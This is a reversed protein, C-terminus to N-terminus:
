WEALDRATQYSFFVRHTEIEMRDGYAEVVKKQILFTRYKDGNIYVTGNSGATIKFAADDETMNVHLLIADRASKPRAAVEAHEVSALVAVGPTHAVKRSPHLIALVGGAREAQEALRDFYAVARRPSLTVAGGKNSYYNSSM